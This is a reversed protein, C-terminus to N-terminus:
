QAVFAPDSSLIELTREDEEMVAMIQDLGDQLYTFYSQLAKTGEPSVTQQFGFESLLGAQHKEADVDIRQRFAECEQLLSRAESEVAKDPTATALVVEGYETELLSQKEELLAVESTIHEEESLLVSLEALVNDLDEQIRQVEETQMAEHDRLEDYGSIVKPVLHEPDPCMRWAETWESAQVGPPPTRKTEELAQQTSAVLPTYGKKKFMFKETDYDVALGLDLLAKPVKTPDATGAAAATAATTGATKIGFGGPKAGFGKVPSIGFKAGGVGVAGTPKAQIFHAKFAEDLLAVVRSAPVIRHGHVAKVQVIMRLKKLATNACHKLTHVKVKGGVPKELLIKLNSCVQQAAAEAAMGDKLTLTFQVHGESDPTNPLQYFVFGKFASTDPGPPSLVFDYSTATPDTNLYEGFGYRRQIANFEARIKADVNQKPHSLPNVSKKQAAAAVGARPGKFGPFAM